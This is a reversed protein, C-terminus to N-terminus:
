MMDGSDWAGFLLGNMEFDIDQFLEDFCIGPPSQDIQLSSAGVGVNMSGANIGGADRSSGCARLGGGVGGGVRQIREALREFARACHGAYTCLHGHARLAALVAEWSRAVAETFLEQHLMAALFNAGAIHLYYIRYWWPLLAIQSPQNPHSHPHPYANPELTETVLTTIQQAAELCMTAANQLLRNRLSGTASTPRPAPSAPNSAMCYIRALMPRYLYIRHHLYRLQLLYGEARSSRDVVMKLNRAQWEPPLSDEWKQLSADLQLAAACYEDQQHLGSAPTSRARLQALQIQTGIEYLRMGFSDRQASNAGRRQSSAPPLPVLVLTSPKGLSWSTCRDLAVCTVWVKMKLDEDEDEGVGGHGCMSQAMRIVVGATMWTKHQNDTCHLYRNVLILSQLLELSVPTWLLDSPLLAWARLFFRNGQENRQPAPIHEQRQIALAFVSNLICLWINFDPRTCPLGELTSYITQYNEMFRQCDLVPEVPEVYRWYIDVLQDAYARPPLDTVFHSRTSNVKHDLFLHEFLPADVFPVKHPKAAPDIAAVVQDAFRGHAGYYTGNQDPGPNGPGEDTYRSEAFPDTNNSPTGVSAPPTHRSYHASPTLDHGHSSLKPQAMRTNTGNKRPVTRTCGPRTGDCKAKRSRCTACASRVKLRPRHPRSRLNQDM